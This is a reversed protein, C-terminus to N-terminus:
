PLQPARALYGDVAQREPETLEARRIEYTEGPRPLSVTVSSLARRLGGCDGGLADLLPIGECWQALREGLRSQMRVTVHQPLEVTTVRYVEGDRGLRVRGNLTQDQPPLTVDDAQETAFGLVTVEASVAGNGEVRSVFRAQHTGDELPSLYVRHSLVRLQASRARVRLQLPGWASPATAVESFAHPGDLRAFSLETEASGATGPFLGLAMASLLLAGFRATRV